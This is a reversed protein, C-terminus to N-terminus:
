IVVPAEPLEGTPKGSGPFPGRMAETVSDIGHVVGEQFRGGRFDSEMQRCIRQWVEPDVRRHAGRDVVIEVARDALLLYILVGNRHETDWMHLSAFLQLARQRPTQNRLLARGHLATEVAFRVQGSQRCESAHIAAQIADLVPPSFVQRLRWHTTLLHRTIRRLAM